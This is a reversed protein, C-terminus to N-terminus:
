VSEVVLTEYDRESKVNPAHVIVQVKNGHGNISLPGIRDGVTAVVRSMDSAVKSLTKLSNGEDKLKPRISELTSLLVDLAGNHAEETKSSVSVKGLTANLRSKLDLDVSNNTYDLGNANKSVVSQDVDFTRAVSAQSEDGSGLVGILVKVDPGLKTAGVVGGAGQRYKLISLNDPSSIRGELELDSLIMIHSHRTSFVLVGLLGSCDIM